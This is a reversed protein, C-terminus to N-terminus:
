FDGLDVDEDIDGGHQKDYKEYEEDIVQDAFDDIDDTFAKKSKKLAGNRAKKKKNFDNFTKIFDLREGKDNELEGEADEAGDEIFNLLKEDETKKKNQKKAKLKPNKLIFKDLFNVLSFDILPDGEYAIVEKNYNNLIFNAFKQITPHYHQALITLEALPFDSANTYVPDRKNFDYHVTENNTKAGGEELMKWLKHKNRMVQSIILLVCAIFTPESILSIDLLRKLFAAIRNLNHDFILSQLVLKLLLKVHKSVSLEKMMILEYLSKYYRDQLTSEKYKVINFILNLTEIRLKLSKSHSLRFL